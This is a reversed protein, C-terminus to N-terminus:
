YIIDEFDQSSFGYRSCFSPWVIKMGYNEALYNAIKESECKTLGNYCNWNHEHMEERKRTEINNKITPWDSRGNYLDRWSRVILGVNTPVDKITNWNDGISYSTTSKMGLEHTPNEIKFNGGLISLLASKLKEYSKSIGIVEETVIKTRFLKKKEVQTEKKFIKLGTNDNLYISFSRSQAFTWALFDVKDSPFLYYKDIYNRNEENYEKLVELFGKEKSTLQYEPKRLLEDLHPRYDPRIIYFLMSQLLRNEKDNLMIKDKNEM